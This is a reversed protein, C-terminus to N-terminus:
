LSVRVLWGDCTEPRDPCSISCQEQDVKHLELHLTLRIEPRPFRLASVSKGAKVKVHGNLTIVFVPFM